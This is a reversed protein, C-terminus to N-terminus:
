TLMSERGRTYDNHGESSLQQEPVVGAQRSGHERGHHDHVRIWVVTLGLNFAKRKYTAKTM